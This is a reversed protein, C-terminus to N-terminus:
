CLNISDRHHSDRAQHQETGDKYVQLRKISECVRSPPKRTAKGLANPSLNLITAEQSRTRTIKDPFNRQYYKCSSYPFHTWIYALTSTNMKSWLSHHRHLDICGCTSSVIFECIYYMANTLTTKSGVKMYTKKSRKPTDKKRITLYGGCLM